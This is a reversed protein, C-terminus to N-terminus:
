AFAEGKTYFLPLYEDIVKIFAEKVWKYPVPNEFLILKAM